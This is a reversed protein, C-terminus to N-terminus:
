LMQIRYPDAKYDYFWEDEEYIGDNRELSFLSM